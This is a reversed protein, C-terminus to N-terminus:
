ALDKRIAASLEGLSIAGEFKAKVRGDRGVLFTWPETPLHWQRVWENEGKTPINDRYIEVHIFRIGTGAFARRAAGVVDVVPGCTRSSCFRPTAFTLVFPVHARLSDAVSYRLLPRDPPVSTTLLRLPASALTPTHSPLARAGIAPTVSRAKVDVDHVGGIRLGGIPRALLWYVGPRQARFHAVYISTVDGGAPASGPLGIHELTATTHVFPEANRSRAVWVDAKPRSVARATNTVVLFAVRVDGTAYDSTGPVLVM